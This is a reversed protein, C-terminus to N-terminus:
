LFVVMQMSPHETSLLKFYVIVQGIEEQHKEKEGSSMVSTLRALKKLVNLTATFKTALACPDFDKVVKIFKNNLPLKKALREACVSCASLARKLFNHIISDNQKIKKVKKVIKSAAFGFALLKQALRNIHNNM